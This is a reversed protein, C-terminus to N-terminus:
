GVCSAFNLSAAIGNVNMDDIRADVQYVGKRLQSLSTPEMREEGPVRGAVANLGVQPMTMGQYEWYNTGTDTTRMKPASALAEGSLHKDFMDPPESVHDDVSVIVMDNMN